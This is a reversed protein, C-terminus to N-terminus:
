HAHENGLKLFGTGLLLLMKPALDGTEGTSRAMNLQPIYALIWARKRRARPHAVVCGHFIGNDIAGGHPLEGLREGEDAAWIM